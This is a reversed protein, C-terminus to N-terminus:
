IWGLESFEPFGGQWIRFGAFLLLSLGYATALYRGMGDRTLLGWVTFVLATGIGLWPTQGEVSNTFYTFGVSAALLHGVVGGRAKRDAVVVALVAVVVAFGAYWLYHGVTEDWLHVVDPDTGPLANGVSNAALHIGHGSTYLVAGFLFATWAGAEAGAARLTGAAAGIVVYPTLLDIWDAWRTPGVEGLGTFLTGGHHMVGYGLAFVVLWGGFSRAHRETYASM